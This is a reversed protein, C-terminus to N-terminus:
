LWCRRTTDSPKEALFESNISELNYVVTDPNLKVTDEVAKSATEELAEEHLELRPLGKEECIDMYMSGLAMGIEVDPSNDSEEAYESSFAENGQIKGNAMSLDESEGLLYASEVLDESRDGTKGWINKYVLMGPWLVAEDSKDLFEGYLDEEDEFDQRM